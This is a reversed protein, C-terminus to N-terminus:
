NYSKQIGETDVTLLLPTIKTLKEVSEQLQHSPCYLSGETSCLEKGSIRTCFASGCVKTNDIITESTPDLHMCSYCTAVYVCVCM